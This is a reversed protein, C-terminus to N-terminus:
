LSFNGSWRGLAVLIEVVAPALGFADACLAGAAFPVPGM